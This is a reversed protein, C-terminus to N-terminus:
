LGDGIGWMRFAVTIGILNGHHLIELRDMILIIAQPRVIIVIVIPIWVTIIFHRGKFGEVRMRRRVIGLREKGGCIGIAGDVVIVVITLRHWVELRDGIGWIRLALTIGILNLHHLIELGDIVIIIGRPCIIIIFHRSKLGEVRTRLGEAPAIPTPSYIIIVITVM